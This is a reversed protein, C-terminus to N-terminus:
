KQENHLRHTDSSIYSEKTKLCDSIIREITSHSLSLTKAIIDGSSSPPGYNIIQRVLEMNAGAVEVVPYNSRSTDNVDREKHFRM